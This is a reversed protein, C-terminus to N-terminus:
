LHWQTVGRCEFNRQHATFILIGGNSVHKELFPWLWQEGHKDLNAFPEDLLWFATNDLIMRILAVKHKQGLSLKRCPTHRYIALNALELLGDIETCRPNGIDLVINELLTLDPHLGIQHGIYSCNPIEDIRGSDPILIGAFLKLLTSKGSGNAGCLHIIQGAKLQASWNDIIRKEDYSFNLNKIDLSLSLM